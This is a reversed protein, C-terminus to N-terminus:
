NSSWYLSSNAHLQISETPIAQVHAVFWVDSASFWYKDYLVLRDCDIRIGRLLM